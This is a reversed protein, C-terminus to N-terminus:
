SLRVGNARPSGITRFPFLLQKRELLDVGIEGLTPPEAANAGVAIKASTAILVIEPLVKGVATHGNVKIRVGRGQHTLEFSAFLGHSQWSLADCFCLQHSLQREQLGQRDILEGEEERQRSPTLELVSVVQSACSQSVARGDTPVATLSEVIM